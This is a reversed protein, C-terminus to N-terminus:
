VCFLLFLAPDGRLGYLHITVALFGGWCGGTLLASALMLRRWLGPNVPYLARKSYLIWIRAAGLLVSAIAISYFIGAYDRAYPTAFGLVLVVFPFAWSGHKARLALDRDAQRIQDSQFEM